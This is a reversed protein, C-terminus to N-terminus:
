WQMVKMSAQSGATSQVEQDVGERIYGAIASEVHKRDQAVHPAHKPKPKDPINSHKVFLILKIILM